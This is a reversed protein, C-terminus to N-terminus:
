LIMIYTIFDDTKDNALMAPIDMTTEYNTVGAKIDSYTKGNSSVNTM